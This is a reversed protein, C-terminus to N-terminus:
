SFLPDLEGNSAITSAAQQVAIPTLPVLPPLEGIVTVHGRQEIAVRNDQNPSGVLVVGAVPIARARLAEITLLTHNITGLGSRATVVAPLALAFILDAMMERDNLPVLVGGAGEAIFARDPEESLALELLDAVAISRGSLHASLHPSLPRELRVGRDLIRDNSVGSLEKVTRTDDDVEIGTQVPKWYRLQAVHRFRHLLAASVVTKGVGTDTGTVFVGRLGGGGQGSDVAAARM